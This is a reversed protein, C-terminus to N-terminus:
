LDEMALGGSKEKRNLIMEIFAQLRTRLQGEAFNRPDVCDVELNLVPIGAKGLGEEIMGRAGTGQRCGWHCPQIVGDVKYSRALKKLNEIRREVPGILPNALTRAALSEFPKDPDIPDWNIQNLEDIVIAAHFEEELMKLLPNRFQIRNQFWLLRVKEGPIGPIGSQVKRAFEDRYTSAVEVANDTGMLLAMVLSFNTLDNQRAPSPVNRALEYVEKMLERAKNTSEITQRLKSPDLPQHTHQSVFDVMAKYQDALYEISQRDHGYPIHVVFLDKKFHHALNEVTSLGGSCPATTAILFSPEPMLGKKMAGVVARHYTCLDTSYGQSEADELIAETGGTSALMAGVFEVFCSTVDMANLLDFPIIVGCWAVNREGSFLRIGLRAVELAYKKRAITEQGSQSLKAEIGSALAKFYELMM